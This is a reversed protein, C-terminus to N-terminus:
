KTRLNFDNNVIVQFSRSLLKSAEDDLCFKWFKSDIYICTVQSVM